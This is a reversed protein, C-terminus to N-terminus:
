EGYKARFTNHENLMRQEDATLAVANNNTVPLSSASATATAKTSTSSPRVTASSRAFQVLTPAASATAPTGSPLLSAIMWPFILARESTERGFSKRLGARM